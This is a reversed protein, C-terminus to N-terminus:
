TQQGLGEPCSADELRRVPFDHLDVYLHADDIHGTCRFALDGSFTIIVLDAHRQCVAQVPSWHDCWRELGAEAFAATMTDRSPMNQYTAHRENLDADRQGPTTREPM